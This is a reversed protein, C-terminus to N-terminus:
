HFCEVLRQKGELSSFARTVGDGNGEMVFAKFVVDQTGESHPASGAGGCTHWRYRPNDRCEWLSFLHLGACVAKLLLLVLVASYLPLIIKKEDCSNTM